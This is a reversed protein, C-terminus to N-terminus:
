KNGSAPTAALRARLVAAAADEPFSKPMAQTPRVTPHVASQTTATAHPPTRGRRATHAKPACALSLSKPHKLLLNANRTGLLKSLAFMAKPAVTQAMGDKGAVSRGRQAVLQKRALKVEHVQDASRTGLPRSLAFMAMLAVNPAM